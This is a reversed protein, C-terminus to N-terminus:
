GVRYTLVRGKGPIKAIVLVGSVIRYSFDNRPPFSWLRESLRKRSSSVLHCARIKGVMARAWSDWLSLSLDWPAWSNGMSGPDWPAPLSFGRVM